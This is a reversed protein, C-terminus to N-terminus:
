LRLAYGSFHFMETLPLFSFLTRALPCFERLLPSRFPILGFRRFIECSIKQPPLLILASNAIIPLTVFRNALPIRQFASGFLTIAEYTFAFQSKLTLRSYRSTLFGLPFCGTSDPFALYMQHEITFLYRSPFTLLLGPPRHFLVQFWISVLLLLCM